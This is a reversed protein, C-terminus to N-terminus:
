RSATYGTKDNNTGVTVAGASLTISASALRSSITANVNDVLLKGISGATTLASTLADWIAQIGGASLSYGTKDSVTSATYGTKDNNTGVTVTGSSLSIQGAGTGSSLLVSAGLDRGTQSVNGQLKTNVDPTGAVVPTLWATGLLQVANAKVVGATFDLQGTGTGRRYCYARM